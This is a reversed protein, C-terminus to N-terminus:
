QSVPESESVPPNSEAPRRQPEDLHFEKRLFRALGFVRDASSKKLLVKGGPLDVVEVIGARRLPRLQQVINPKSTGFHHTIHEYTSTQSHNDEDDLSLYIEALRKKGRFMDYVHNKVDPNAGLLLDLKGGINEVM